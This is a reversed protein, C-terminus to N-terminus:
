RLNQLSDMGLGGLYEGSNMPRMTSKFVDIWTSKKGTIFPVDVLNVM